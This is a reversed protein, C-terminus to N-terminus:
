SPCSPEEDTHRTWKKCDRCRTWFVGDGDTRCRDCAISGCECMDEASLIVVDEAMCEGTRISMM